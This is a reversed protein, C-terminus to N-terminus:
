FVRYLRVLEIVLTTTILVDTVVASVLWVIIIPKAKVFDPLYPLMSVAITEGTGGVSTPNLLEHPRSRSLPTLYARLQVASCAVILSVLWKSGTLM